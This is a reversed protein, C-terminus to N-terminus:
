FSDNPNIILKQIIRRGDEFCVEAFYIGAGTSGLDFRLEHLPFSTKYSRILKGNPACLNVSTVGLTNGSLYFHSHAPNPYIRLTGTTSYNGTELATINNTCCGSEEFGIANDNTQVANIIAGSTLNVTIVAPMSSANLGRFVYEGASNIASSESTIGLSIGNLVGITTLSGNSLKLRQLIYQGNYEKLVFVASHQISYQHGKLNSSIPNNYVLNGWPLEYSRLYYNNGNIVVFNYLNQSVDYTFSGGLYATMSIPSGIMTTEGTVPNIKALTNNLCSVCLGYLTSDNCNYVLGVINTFIEPSYVTNGTVADITYIRTAGEALGTVYYYNSDPNYATKDGAVYTTMGPIVQYDTKIGTSADIRAFYYQNNVPNKWVAFPNATQACVHQIASNFILLLVALRM